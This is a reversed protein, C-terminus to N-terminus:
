LLNFALGDFNEEESEPEHATLVKSSTKLGISSTIYKSTDENYPSLFSDMRDKDPKKAENLRLLGLGLIVVHFFVSFIM